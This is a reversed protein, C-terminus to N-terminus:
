VLVDSVVLEVVQEETYGLVEELAWMTHQGLTPGGWAPGPPTLSYRVHPGEVWVDGHIPHPVQRFHQRHALQPDAFCQASRQVQHACIKHQQLTEQLEELEKGYTFLAIMEDLEAERAFREEINLTALDDRGLLSALRIWQSDDTCSIAIWCDAAPDGAAYTGNPAFHRDANGQRTFTKGNVSQELVSPALLHIAAESQALDIYQGEGTRRAHDVAAVVSLALFRPSVYDTYATYPGAPTRDAWGTLATFGTISAALNGFGAFDSLPGVQGMLSSSVMVLSPNVERLSEYDMGISKMFGPAFSEVVVDAWKALDRAINRAADTTLDLQVSHKGAGISHWLATDEIGGGKGALFPTAARIVDVRRESEVRVITAGHDALLRTAMPGAIVWTFDLVKLGDLARGAPMTPSNKAASESGAVTTQGKKLMDAIETEHEGIRAASSLRRLPTVTPKAWRGPVSVSRKSEGDGVSLEDWFERAQFHENALLDASTAIPVILLRKERAITFLEDKTFTSTLAACADTAETLTSPALQGTRFLEFFAIYNLDRIEESCYGAEWVWHMLKQTFRGIMDGFLFTIAVHGDKAPYVMRVNYPGMRVGGAHRENDPAGVAASLMAVQTAQMMSQQASVDLHQGVGLRARANLAVVAGVAAEIAAHHYAQPESIRVPARDSDGNLIMHGSAAVLTLDSALWNAKPGTEGFASITITILRPNAARLGALDVEVAGCEILVDATAALSALDVRDVRVSKKGRNYALHVLSREPDVVDDVFPGVHRSSAGNTPEIAIVEAGLQALLHSALQGREDTLDLIRYPSLM